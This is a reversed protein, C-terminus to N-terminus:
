CEDDYHNGFPKDIDNSSLKKLEDVATRVSLKVLYRFISVFILWSLLLGVVVGVIVWMVFM